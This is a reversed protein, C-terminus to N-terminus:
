IEIVSSKLMNSAGGYADTELEWKQDKVKGKRRYLMQGKRPLSM